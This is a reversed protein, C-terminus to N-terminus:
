TKRRRTSEAPNKWAPKPLEGDTGWNLVWAVVEEHPILRGARDSVLGKKIAEVQWRNLAVYRDLAQKVHGGM